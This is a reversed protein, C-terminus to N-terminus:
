WAIRFARFVKTRLNHERFEAVTSDVIRKKKSEIVNDLIRNWHKRLVQLRRKQVLARQILQRRDKRWRHTRLRQFSQFTKRKLLHERLSAPRIYNNDFIFDQLASLYRRKFFMKAIKQKIAYQHWEYLVKKAM